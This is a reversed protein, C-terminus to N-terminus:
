VDVSPDQDRSSGHEPHQDGVKQSERPTPM